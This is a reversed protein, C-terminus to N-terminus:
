ERCYTEGKCGAKGVESNKTATAGALGPEGLATSNSRLIPNSGDNPDADFIAVVEGGNGTAGNSGGNGGNGITLQNAEISPAMGKGFFIGISPGGHGGGGDSGAGGRGGRGGNGARKAESSNNCNVTVAGNGGRQGALGLRGIGGDGGAGGAGTTIQNDVIDALGVNVMWLGVSAGGGHGAGGGNGRLGGEGGGGGGAGNIFITSLYCSYAGGGGGGGGPFGAQGHGGNHRVFKDINTDFFDYPIRIQTGDQGDEGPSGNQPFEGGRGGDGHKGARWPARDDHADEGRAGAGTFVNASGARGGAGPRPSENLSHTSGGEGGTVGVGPAGAATYDEPADPNTGDNGAGANGANLTNNNLSVRGLNNVYVAYNSQGTGFGLDNNISDTEFRNHNIDLTGTSSSSGTVLLAVQEFFSNSTETVAESKLYFGSLETGDAIDRYNFVGDFQSDPTRWVPTLNSQVNRVWNSDFGGYLNVNAPIDLSNVPRYPQVEGNVNKTMVYLNHIEGPTIAAFAEEFSRYPKDRTGEGFGATGLGIYSSKGVDNLVNVLVRDTSSSGDVSVTLDFVLTTVSDPATFKPSRGNLTSVPEGNVIVKEDGSLTWTYQPSGTFLGGAGGNLTVSQSKLVTIDEGAVANVLFSPNTCAEREEGDPISDNDTDSDNPNSTVKFQEGVDCPPSASLNSSWGYIEEADSIGDMDSDALNIDTGFDNEYRDALADRDTDTVYVLTLSDGGALKIDSLKYDAQLLNLLQTTAQGAASTATRTLAGIWYSNSNASMAVSDISLLGAKTTSAASDNGYIWQGNGEEVTFRLVDTLAELATINNGAGGKNVAVLYSGSFGSNVGFDVAITASRASVDQDNLQLSSDTVDLLRYTAPEIVLNDSNSLLQRADALSLDTSFNILGSTFGTTMSITPFGSESSTLNGISRLQFPRKPDFLYASLTLNELDYALNGPNTVKVGVRLTGGTIEVGNTESYEESEALTESNESRQVNTWNVSSGTITTSQRAASVSLSSEFSVSGGFDVPGIDITTGVSNTSTVSTSHALEVQRTSGGGWESTYSSVDTETHETGFTVGTTSSESTILTINPPSVIDIRIKALDAVRPNFRTPDGNTNYLLVEEFDELGDGDSDKDLPNTGHTAIEACDYLGDTDTDTTDDPNDCNLQNSIINGDEPPGNGNGGNGDASTGSSGGGGCSALLLVLLASGFFHVLNKM